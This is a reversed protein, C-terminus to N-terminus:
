KASTEKAKIVKSKIDASVEKFSKTKSMDVGVIDMLFVFVPIGVLLGWIGFFHGSITIILFTFFVPINTKRSMLKPNLIYSELTHLVAIIILIYLIYQLGGITYGIICLPILSIFVGAIPILGLIFIMVGLGLVSPFGLLTLAIVSLFCNIASIVIQVEIVKGFTNAFKVGFYKLESYLWSVKSNRFGAIFRKCKNKQLLYFLSLIISMFIDFAVTGISGLYTFLQTSFKSLYSNFDIKKIQTIIMQLFDNDSKFDDNISTISSTILKAVDMTQVAIKPIYYWLFLVILSILIVYIAIIIIVRKVVIYKNVKSYVFKQLTNILYIFVFTLLFLTIMSRCLYLVFAIVALLLFRKVSPKKFFNIIDQM